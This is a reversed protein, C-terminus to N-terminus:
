ISGPSFPIRYKIQFWISEIGQSSLLTGASNNLRYRAGIASELRDNLGYAFGIDNDWRTFNQGSPFVQEVGQSDVISTSRFYRSDWQIRYSKKLLTPLPRSLTIGPWLFFLLFLIKLLLPM